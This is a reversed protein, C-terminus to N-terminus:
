QGPFFIEKVGGDMYEAGQGDLIPMKGFEDWARQQWGENREGALTVSVALVYPPLDEARAIVLPELSGTDQQYDFEVKIADLLNKSAFILGLFTATKGKQGVMRTARYVGYQTTKEEKMM